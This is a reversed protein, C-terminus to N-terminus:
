KLPMAATLVVAVVRISATPAQVRVHLSELTTSSAVAVSVRACGAHSACRSCHLMVDPSLAGTLPVAAADFDVRRRPTEENVRATVGARQQRVTRSRLARPQHEGREPRPDDRPVSVPATMRDLSMTAISTTSCTRTRTRMQIKHTRTRYAILANDHVSTRISTQVLLITTRTQATRTQHM